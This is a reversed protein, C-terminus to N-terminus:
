EDEKENNLLYGFGFEEIEDDTFGIYEFADYTEKNDCHYSEEIDSMCKKLLEVARQYDMGEGNLWVEKQIYTLLDYTDIKALAEGCEIIAKEFNRSIWLIKGQKEAEDHKYDIEAMQNMVWDYDKFTQQGYQVVCQIATRFIIEGKCDFTARIKDLEKKSEMYNSM